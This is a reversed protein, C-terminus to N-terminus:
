QLMHKLSRTQKNKIIGQAKDNNTIFATRQLRFISSTKLKNM